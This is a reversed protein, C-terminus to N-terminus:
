GAFRRGKVANMNNRNVEETVRRGDMYANVQANAMGARIANEIRSELDGIDVQGDKRAETATLVREGRHLLAPYNDFPIYASGIAHSKFWPLDINFPINVSKPLENLIRQFFGLDETAKLIVADTLGMAEGLARQQDALGDQAEKAKNKLDTAEEGLAKAEDQLEAWENVISRQEGTAGNENMWTIIQRGVQNYIDDTMVGAYGNWSELNMRYGEGRSSALFEDMAAYASAKKGEAEETKLIAEASKEYAATLQKAVAEEKEAMAASLLRQKELRAWADINDEIDKTNGQIKKGDKDIYDSLQPFLDLAKAALADWTMKGEEDLSWYDGMDALQEILYKASATAEDVKASAAVSKTNIEDLVDVLANDRLRPNLKTLFDTLWTVADTLVPIIDAVFAQRIADLEAQLNAVADGYAVANDIEEDSMVLGLNNAEDLLEKIGDYGEDLMANLADGGPGFLKRVLIGRQDTDSIKSLEMLTATMLDESNKFEDSTKNAVLRDLLGLDRFADYADQSLGVLKDAFGDVQDEAKAFGVDIAAAEMALRMNALGKRVDSISAGSQKLAHDWEQYAQRSIGLTKAGKDIGDATEATMDIAQKLGSVIGQILGVIGAALIAKKIGGVVDEMTGGFGKGLEQADSVNDSFESTDMSLKPDEPMEFGEVESEAKDLEKHFDDADLTLKAMLSFLEM